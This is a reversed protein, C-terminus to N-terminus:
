RKNQIKQNKQLELILTDLNVILHDFHLFNLFFLTSLIVRRIHDLRRETLKCQKSKAADVM